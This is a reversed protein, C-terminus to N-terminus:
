RNAARPLRGSRETPSNEQSMFRTPTWSHVVGDEIYNFITGKTRVAICDTDDVANCEPAGADPESEDVSAFDSEMIKCAEVLLDNGAPDSEFITQFAVSDIKELILNHRIEDALLTKAHEEDEVDVKDIKIGNEAIVLLTHATDMFGFVKLRKDVAKKKRPAM